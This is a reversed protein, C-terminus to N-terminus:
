NSDIPLTYILQTKLTDIELNKMTNLEWYKISVNEPKFNITESNVKQLIHMPPSLFNGLSPKKTSSEKNRIFTILFKNLAAKKNSNYYNRGYSSKLSDIKRYKGTFSQLAETLKPNSTAGYTGVLVEENKIFHFRNQAFNVDYPKFYSVDVEIGESDKGGIEFTYRNVFGTDLWALKLKSYTWPFIFLLAILFVVSNNINFYFEFKEKQKVLIHIFILEFLIWKWFFIGSFAFIGLHMAVFGVLLSLTLKRNILLILPTFEIILSVIEFFNDNSNLTKFITEIIEKDVWYLWNHLYAASMLFSLNNNSVWNLRFKGWAALLYWNGIIGLILIFMVQWSLRKYIIKVLFFVGFTMLIDYIIKKDTFTYSFCEPYTFQHALFYAQTVFLLVAFPNFISYIGLSVLLLRDWFHLHNLYFNYDYFAYAWTLIFICTVYLYFLPSSEWISQHLKKIHSYIVLGIFALIIVLARTSITIINPFIFVNHYPAEGYRTFIITSFLTYLFVVACLMLFTQVLEKSNIVFKGPFNTM